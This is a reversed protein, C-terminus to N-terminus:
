LGVATWGGDVAAAIAASGAFLEAASARTRDAFAKM